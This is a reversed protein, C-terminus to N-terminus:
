KIRTAEFWTITKSYGWSDATPNYVGTERRHTENITIYGKKELAKLARRDLGDYQWTKCWGNKWRTGVPTMTTIQNLVKEQTATLM